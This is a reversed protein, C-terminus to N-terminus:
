FTYAGGFRYARTFENTGSPRSDSLINKFGIDHQLYLAISHKITIRKTIEAGITAGANWDVFSNIPRSQGSPYGPQEYFNIVDTFKGTFLGGKLSVAHKETRKTLYKEAYVGVQITRFRNILTSAPIKSTGGLSMYDVSSFVAWTSTLFYRAHVGASPMFVPTKYDRTSVKAFTSLGIGGHIGVGFKKGPETDDNAHQALCCSPGTLLILLFLNFRKKM